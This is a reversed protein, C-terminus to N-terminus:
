QLDGKAQTTERTSDKQESLGKVEMEPKIGQVLNALERTLLRLFDDLTVIGVLWGDDDVLPLRRVGSEMMTLTPNHFISEDQHITQVPSTMVSSVPDQLSARRTGLALALDRDTVIGVPRHHDTIVVAGVNHKGMLDAIATLPTSLGATIVTRAFCRM